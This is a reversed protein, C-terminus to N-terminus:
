ENVSKGNFARILTALKANMDALAVQTKDDVKAQARDFGQKVAGTRARRADENQAHKLLGALRTEPRDAAKAEAHLQAETKDVGALLEGHADAKAQNRAVDAGARAKRQEISLEKEAEMREQWFKRDIERNKAREGAQRLEEAGIRKASEIEAQM